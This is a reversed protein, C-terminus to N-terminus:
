IINFAYVPPISFAHLQCDFGSGVLFFRECRRTGSDAHVSTTGAQWTQRHQYQLDTPDKTCKLNARNLGQM